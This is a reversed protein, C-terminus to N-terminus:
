PAQVWYEVPRDLFEEVAIGGSGVLLTRTPTFAAAFAAMGPQADRVRGSKVEIATVTRGAVVVFDVEKNRERWYFIECLGRAVANTLHAGIASEVLRGWYDHDARAEALTHGSHVTM